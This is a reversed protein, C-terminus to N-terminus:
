KVKLGELHNIAWDHIVDARSPKKAVSGRRKQKLWEKRRVNVEDDITALDIEGITLVRFGKAPM